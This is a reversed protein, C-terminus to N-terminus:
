DTGPVSFFFLSDAAQVCGQFGDGATGCSAQQDRQEDQRCDGQSARRNRDAIQCEPM